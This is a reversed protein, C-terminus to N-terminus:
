GARVTRRVEAVGFPASSAVVVEGGEVVGRRSATRATTATIAEGPDVSPLFVTAPQVHPDRISVSLAPRRTHNSVVLDVRVEDGPFVEGAARRVVDLGRTARFPLIVGAVAVGLLLASLVFVWGSQVNTAVPFLM